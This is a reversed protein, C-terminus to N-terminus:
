SAWVPLDIRSAHTRPGLDIGGLARADLVRTLRQRLTTM